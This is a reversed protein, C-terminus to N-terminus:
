VRGSGGGGQVWFREGGCVEAVFQLAFFSCHLLFQLAFSSCHLFVTKTDDHGGLREMVGERFRGARFGSGEAVCMFGLSGSLKLEPYSFFFQLAFFSCRLFLQLAVFVAVCFFSCHLFFQLAFFICQLLFQLAFSVATCFFSCRLFFCCHLFMCCLFVATCFFHMRTM